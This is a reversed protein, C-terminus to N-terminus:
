CVLRLAGAASLRGEATLDYCYLEDHGVTRKVRNIWGAAELHDLFPYLTGSWVQAATCLRWGHLNSAGSLLALLVRKRGRTLRLRTLGIAGPRRYSIWTM